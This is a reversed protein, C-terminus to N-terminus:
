ISGAFGQTSMFVRAYQEAMMRDPLGIIRRCARGALAIGPTSSGQLASLRSSEGGVLGNERARRPSPSVLRQSGEGRRLPHRRLDQAIDNRLVM